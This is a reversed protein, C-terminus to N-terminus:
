KNYFMDKKPPFGNAEGTPCLIPLSHLM